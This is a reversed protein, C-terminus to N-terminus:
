QRYICVDYVRSQKAYVVLFDGERIESLEAKMVKNRKEDYMSYNTTSMMKIVRKGTTGSLTIFSNESDARVANCKMIVGSSHMDAALVDDINKTGGSEHLVKIGDVRGNKNMSYRIMDGRKLSDFMGTKEATLQLNQGRIIGSVRQLIEDNGSVSKYVNDVLFGPSDVTVNDSYEKNYVIIRACNNIDPDYFELNYNTYDPYSWGGVYYKSTDNSYDIGETGGSKPIQFVKVGSLMYYKNSFSSDETRYIGTVNMKRFKTSDDGFTVQEATDIAIVENNANTKYRVLQKPDILNEMANSKTREGNIKANDRVKLVTWVEDETLIKVYFEEDEMWAKFLYGYLNENSVSYYVASIQGDPDLYWTQMRGIEFCDLNNTEVYKLFSPNVKYEEGNLTVKDDTTNYATMAGTVSADSVILEANQKDKSELLYIINWTKIEKLSFPEKDKTITYSEYKTLDIVENTYKALITESVSSANDAVVTKYSSVFIVDIINDNNNDILEVYGNEPMLDESKFDPYGRGNYVMDAVRSIKRKVEKDDDYFRLEEKTASDIDESNVRIISNKDTACAYVLTKDADDKYYAEVECGLLKKINEEGSTYHEGGIVVTNEAYSGVGDLSIGGAATVIDKVKYIGHYQELLTAGKEWTAGDDISTIVMVEADAANLVLRAMQEKNLREGAKVGDNLKLESCIVGVTNNESIIKGYGLARVIVEVAEDYTIKKSMNVANGDSSTPIIGQQELYDVSGANIMRKVIDYFEARTVETSASGSVSTIFGFALMRDTEEKYNGTSKALASAPLYSALMIFIMLHALIKRM